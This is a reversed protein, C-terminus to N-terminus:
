APFYAVLEPFMARVFDAAQKEAEEERDNVVPVVVRVIATDTRNYRISDMVTQIKATYESAVVRNRSQYWYAM